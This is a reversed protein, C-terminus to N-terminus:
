EETITVGGGIETEIVLSLWHGLTRVRWLVKEIGKARNAKTNVGAQRVEFQEVVREDDKLNQSFNILMAGLLIRNTGTGKAKVFDVLEEAASIQLFDRMRRLAIESKGSDLSMTVGSRFQFGKKLKELTCIGAARLLKLDERNLSMNTVKNIGAGLELTARSGVHTDVETQSYVSAMHEHAGRQILVGTKPDRTWFSNFCWDVRDARTAFDTGANTIETARSQGHVGGWTVFARDSVLAANVAIQGNLANQDVSAAAGMVCAIGEYFSLDDLAAIYDGSVLTGESGDVGTWAVSVDALGIYGDAARAAVWATETVTATNEPRGSALKTLVVLNALDDGVVTLLNDDAATNVNLNEYTTISGQYRVALNFHNANGNSADMVQAELRGIGAWIGASSAEVHLVEIGAGDVGVEFNLSAVVSDAAVVRRCVTLGFKKNIRSAWMEGVIPGGDGHDREGYLATFDDSGAIVQPESPGRVATGFMGVTNLSVGEIFGPPPRETVYLGELLPYESPNDTYFIEEAM